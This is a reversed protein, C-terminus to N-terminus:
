RRGERAILWRRRELCGLRSVVRVRGYGAARRRAEGVRSWSVLQEHVVWGNRDFAQVIPMEGGKVSSKPEVYDLIEALNEESPDAALRRLLRPSGYLWGMPTALRAIDLARPMPTGRCVWVGRKPHAPDVLAALQAAIDGLPEPYTWVLATM